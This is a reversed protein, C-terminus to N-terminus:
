FKALTREAYIRDAVEAILSKLESRAVPTRVVAASGYKRLELKQLAPELGLSWHPVNPRWYCSLLPEPDSVLQSGSIRYSSRNM